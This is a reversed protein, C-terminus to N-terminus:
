DVYRKRGPHFFVLTLTFSEDQSFLKCPFKWGPNYDRGQVQFRSSNLGHHVWGKELGHLCYCSFSLVCPSDWGPIFTMLAPHYQNGFYRIMVFPTRKKEPLNRLFHKVRSLTSFPIQLPFNKLALVLGDRWVMRLHLKPKPVTQRNEIM